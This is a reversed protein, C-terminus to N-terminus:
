NSVQKTKVQDIRELMMKKRPDDKSLREDIEQMWYISRSYNGSEESSEALQVLEDISLANLPDESPTRTAGFLLIIMLCFLFGAANNFLSERRRANNTFTAAILLVGLICAFVAILLTFGDIPVDFAVTVKQLSGVVTGVFVGLVLFVASKRAPRHQPFVDRFQLFLGLLTAVGAIYTFIGM